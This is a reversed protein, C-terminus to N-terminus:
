SVALPTQHTDFQTLCSSVHPHTDVRFIKKCERTGTFNASSPSPPCRCAGRRQIQRSPLRSAAARPPPPHMLIRYRRGREGRRGAGEERHASSPSPPRCHVGRRQLQHSPHRRYPHCAGWPSTITPTRRGRRGTVSSASPPASFGPPWRSVYPPRTALM